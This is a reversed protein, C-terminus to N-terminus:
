FKFLMWYCDYKAVHRQLIYMNKFKNFNNIKKKNKILFTKKLIQYAIIAVHQQLM